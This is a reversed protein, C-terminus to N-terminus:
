HFINHQVYLELHQGNIVDGGYMNETQKAM